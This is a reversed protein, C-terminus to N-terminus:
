RPSATSSLAPEWEATRDAGTAVCGQAVPTWGRHVVMEKGSHCLEIRESDPYRERVFREIGEPLSVKLSLACRDDMPHDDLHLLPVFSSAFMLWHSGVNVPEPAYNATRLWDQTRERLGDGLAIDGWTAGLMEAVWQNCNQYRTSFAYANASYQAALLQLALPTNRAASRLSAAAAGRPLRVISIYGVDPDDTGMVFGAIGQDFIRPKGENCAYYLQRAAWVGADNRWAIAAHSYRINFGSLDLGSRSILVADDGTADLADRVVASFRLLRDQEGATLEHGRDCWTSAGSLTTGSAAQAAGSAAVSMLCLGVAAAISRWGSPKM